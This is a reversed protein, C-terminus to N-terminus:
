RLKSVNDDPIISYTVNRWTAIFVFTAEFRLGSPLESSVQKLTANDTASRYYVRGRNRLTNIDCALPAVVPRNYREKNFPRFMRQDNQGDFSIVGNTNVQLSFRLLLMNKM